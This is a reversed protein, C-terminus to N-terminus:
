APIFPGGPLTPQETPGFRYESQETSNVTAVVGEGATPPEHAGVGGIRAKGCDSACVDHEAHGSRRQRQYESRYPVERMVSGSYPSRGSQRLLRSTRPRAHPVREM